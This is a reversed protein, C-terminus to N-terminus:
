REDRIVRRTDRTVPGMTQKKPWRSGIATIAKIENVAKIANTVNAM